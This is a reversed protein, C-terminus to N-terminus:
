NKVVYSNVSLFHYAKSNANKPKITIATKNYKNEVRDLVVLRGFRTGRIDKVKGVPITKINHM